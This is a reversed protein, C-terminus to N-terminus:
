RLVPRLLAKMWRDLLRHGRLFGFIGNGLPFVTRAALNSRLVADLTREGIGGPVYRALRYLRVLIPFYRRIFIIQNRKLKGVALTTDSDRDLVVKDTDLGMEETVQRIKTHEYPRFISVNCTDTRVLANIKVTDLMQEMGEGPLGVMNYASLRIDSEKFVRFATVIQEDSLHRELLRNRIEENGSEIGMSIQICGARKLLAVVEQNVLNPRINCSFPMGVEQAYAEAFQTFWRKDLPLIDDDFTFGTIFPYDSKVKQLEEIAKPVSRFRVRKGLGRYLHGLAEAACYTCKYPCGRSLMMTAYGQQENYLNAYDFIDRDPFPLSDLDCLPRLGNKIIEGGRKLWLNRIDWIDGGELRHCLEVMAGEGEGICIADVDSVAITEEPCLTPHLGGFIVICHPYADKVWRSWELALPFMNSTVSFGFLRTGREPLHPQLRELFEERKVLQSIHLLSTGHGAERLVASLSGIGSYYAGGRALARLSTPISLRSM